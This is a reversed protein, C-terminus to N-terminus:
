DNRLWPKNAAGLSRGGGPKRGGTKKGSPKGAASKQGYPTHKGGSLLNNQFTSLQSTQASASGSKKLAESREKNKALRYTSPDYRNKGTAIKLPTVTAEIHQLIAAAPDKQFEDCNLVNGFHDIESENKEKRKLRSMPASKLITQKEDKTTDKVLDRMRANVSGKDYTGGGEILPKQRLISKIDTTSKPASKKAKGRYKIRSGSAALEESEKLLKITEASQKGKPRADKVKQRTLLIRKAKKNLTKVM